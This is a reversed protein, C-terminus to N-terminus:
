SLKDDLNLMKYYCIEKNNNQDQVSAWRCNAKTYNGDNNIRDLTYRQKTIPCIPPTGMDLLFNSFKYWRPDITIGRGGYRHYEPCNSDNCRQNMAIWSTYTLPFKKRYSCNGCDKFKRKAIWREEIIVNNGCICKCQWSYKGKIVSFKILTLEGIIQGSLYM